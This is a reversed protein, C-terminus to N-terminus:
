WHPKKRQDSANEIDTPILNFSMVLWTWALSTIGLHLWQKHEPVDCLKYVIGALFGICIFVSTFM